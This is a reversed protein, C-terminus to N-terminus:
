SVWGSRLGYYVNWRLEQKFRRLNTEEGILVL